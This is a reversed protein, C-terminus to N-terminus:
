LKNKGKYQKKLLDYHLYQSSYTHTESKFTFIYSEDQLEDYDIFEWPKNTKKCIGNNWKLKETSYGHLNGFLITTLFSIFIIYTYKQDYTLFGIFLILSFISLYLYFIPKINFM